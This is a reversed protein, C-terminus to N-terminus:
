SFSQWAKSFGLVNPEKSPGAGGRSTPLLLSGKLDNIHYQFKDSIPLFVNPQYDVSTSIQHYGVKSCYVNETIMVHRLLAHHPLKLTQQPETPWGTSWLFLIPPSPLHQHLCVPDVCPLCKSGSVSPTLFNFEPLISNCLFIM